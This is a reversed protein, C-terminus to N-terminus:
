HSSQSPEGFLRSPRGDHVLEVLDLLSEMCPKTSDGVHISELRNLRMHVSAVQISLDLAQYLYKYVHARDVSAARAALNLTPSHRGVSSMLIAFRGSNPPSALASNALRSPLSTLPSNITPTPTQRQLQQIFFPNILFTIRGKPTSQRSQKHNLQLGLM